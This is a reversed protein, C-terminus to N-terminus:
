DAAPLLEFRTQLLSESDLGLMAEFWGPETVLRLSQDYFALMSEDIDFSVTQSEGPALMLKQFGKLEKLPRSISASIDRLYLQVVTEGSRQGTNRVQVSVRLSHGPLLRAQDLSPQSLTFHTYSLGFGFPYLPTNDIDFYRSRYPAPKSSEFPRGTGLQNYHMPIQGVSRPFSVPLKGSPNYDGFLVDAIANGGETGSFWTELIADAMADEDVLTLPRGNMLVLVLPKGTAKLARLLQRQQTPLNLNTKSAGEHSMGRAEGLAVVVIDAQRAVAVAEAIMASPTRPDFSVHNDALLTFAHSDDAINSGKAYLLRAKQALANKLGQYLSIAQDAQGSGPWSGLIDVQSDALPGILAITSKKALPLTHNHNKLLVLTRRAVNRALARHLRQEAHLDSPDDSPQGLRRYPNEFLGLDYKSGLVQLVAEDLVAIPISGQNVLSPLYEGFYRDSMSMQTGAQLASRAAGSGDSAIGHALLEGVAGHDSIVLGQFHWQRRLIDSLLWSNASAPIGNLTTLATMIAGAGADLAARYPPLYDQYLRLPSMDTTNYDRGGEVAGYAAFHKVCAMISDIAGLTQGQLATVTTASVQSALYTDEGPSESIRGWRPDRSIDVMPALTMDLGDASAEVAATRASDAIAQMDWSSAMGLGIPFITRHGHIVDAAFFLPIGLRSHQTAAQQMERMRARPVSTGAFMAGIQGAKAADLADQPNPAAGIYRMRLQGAKEALTMRSLLDNIFHQKEAEAGHTASASSVATLSFALTLACLLLHPLSCPSAM